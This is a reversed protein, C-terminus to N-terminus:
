LNLNTTFFFWGKEHFTEGKFSRRPIRMHKGVESAKDQIMQYSINLADRRKERVFDAVEEEIKSILM